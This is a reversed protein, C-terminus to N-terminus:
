NDQPWSALRKRGKEKWDLYLSSEDAAQGMKRSSGSGSTLRKEKSRKGKQKKICEDAVPGRGKEKVCMMKKKKSLLLKEKLLFRFRQGYLM